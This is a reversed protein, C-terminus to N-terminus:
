SSTKVERLCSQKQAAAQKELREVIDAIRRANAARDVIILMNIDAHAALHAYQPMMPRLIPVMHATCASRLQM